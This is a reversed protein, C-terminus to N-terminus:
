NKQALVFYNGNPGPEKPIFDLVSFLSGYIKLLEDETVGYVRDLSSPIESKIELPTYLDNTTSNADDRKFIESIFYGKNILVRHIESLIVPWLKPNLSTICTLEAVLSFSNDTFPLEETADAIIIKSHQLNSSASEVAVNSIDIGIVMEFGKSEMFNKFRGRGCGLDLIKSNKDLQGNDSLQNIYSAVEKSIGKSSWFHDYGLSYIMNFRERFNQM